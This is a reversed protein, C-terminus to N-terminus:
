MKKAQIKAKPPAINLPTKLLILSVRQSSRKQVLQPPKKRQSNIRTILTNKVVAKPNMKPLTM